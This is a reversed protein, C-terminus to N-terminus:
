LAYKLFRGKKRKRSNYETTEYEEGVGTWSSSPNPTHPSKKVSSDEDYSGARKASEMASQSDLGKGRIM